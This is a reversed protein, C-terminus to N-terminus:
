DECGGEDNMQCILLNLISLKKLGSLGSLGTGTIKTRRLDLSTLDKLGILDKLNMDTVHKGALNLNQLKTFQNLGTGSVGKCEGVNLQTLETMGSLESVGRDSIRNGCLNLVSINTLGSLEKLGADKIGCGYLTLSQLSKLERLEELESDIARVEYLDLDTLSKLERIGRLGGSKIEASALSLSTLHKLEGIGTLEGDNIKAEVLNLTTLNPLRSREQLAAANPKFHHKINLTTLNKNESLGDLDTPSCIGLMDLTTLNEFIKFSRLEDSTVSHPSNFSSYTWDFSVRVVPRDPRSEDREVKGWHTTIFKVLKAEDTNEQALTRSATVATAVLVFLFRMRM